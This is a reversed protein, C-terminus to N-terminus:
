PEVPMSDSPGNGTPRCFRIRRSLRSARASEVVGGESTDHPAMIPDTATIDM